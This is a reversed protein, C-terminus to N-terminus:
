KGASLKQIFKHDDSIDREKRFRTLKLKWLKARILSVQNSQWYREARNNVKPSNLVALYAGQRKCAKHAQRHTVPLYVVLLCTYDEAQEWGGPCRWKFSVTQVFLFM